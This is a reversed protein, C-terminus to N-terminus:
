GLEAFTPKRCITNFFATNSAAHLGSEPRSAAVAWFRQFIAFSRGSPDVTRDAQPPSLPREM